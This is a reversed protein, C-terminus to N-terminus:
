KLKRKKEPNHIDEDNIDDNDRKVKKNDKIEKDEKEEEENEEKEEEENENEEKENIIFSEEDKEEEEEFEKEENEDEEEEYDSYNKGEKDEMDLFNLSPIIRFIERKYDYISNIPNESLDLFTLEKFKSLIKIDNLNKIKNNALKIKKLKQYIKLKSIEEGSLYNDSLEIKTLNPFGPLNNLSKLQTNNLSFTQVNEFQELYKQEEETIEKIQYTDLIIEKTDKKDLPYKKKLQEFFKKSM